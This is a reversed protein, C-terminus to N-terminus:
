RRNGSIPWAMFIRERQVPMAVPSWPMKTRRSWNRSIPPKGICGSISSTASLWRRRRVFIGQDGTAIGTWRSRINMAHGILPFLRHNGSLRVDFRGWVADEPLARLARIHGRVVRGCDAHLFWLWDGEAREAGLNMQRARGRDCHLVLDAHERAILASNDSSGGDVVIIQDGEGLRERLMELFPGLCKAEDLVPIVVSLNM